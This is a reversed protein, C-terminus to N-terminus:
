DSQKPIRSSVSVYRTMDAEAEASQDLHYKGHGGTKSETEAGLQRSLRQLRDNGGEYPLDHPTDRVM